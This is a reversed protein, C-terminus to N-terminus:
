RSRRPKVHSSCPSGGVVDRASTCIVRQPDRIKVYVRAPIRVGNYYFARGDWDFRFADTDRYCPRSNQGPRM